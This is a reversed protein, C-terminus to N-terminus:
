IASGTGRGSGQGSGRGVPLETSASTDTVSEMGAMSEVEEGRSWPEEDGRVVRPVTNWNPTTESFGVFEWPNQGYERIAWRGLTELQTIHTNTYCSTCAITSPHNGLCQRYKEDPRGHTATGTHPTFPPLPPPTTPRPFVSVPAPLALIAPLTPAASDTLATSAASSPSDASSPSGICAPSPTPAPSAAPGPSATPAPSAPSAPSTARASSAAPGPCAAGSVYQKGKRKGKGKGKGKNQRKPSRKSPNQANAGAFDKAGSTSANSEVSGKYGSSGKSRYGMDEASTLSSRESGKPVGDTQPNRVISGNNAPSDTLFVKGTIDSDLGGLYGNERTVGWPMTGKDQHVDLWDVREFSWRDLGPPPTMLPIHMMWFNYGKQVGERIRKREEKWQAAGMQFETKERLCENTISKRVLAEEERLIWKRLYALDKLYGYESDEPLYKPPDILADLTRLPDSASPFSFIISHDEYEYEWSYSLTAKAIRREVRLHEEHALYLSQDSSTFNNFNAKRRCRLQDLAQRLFTFLHPESAAM